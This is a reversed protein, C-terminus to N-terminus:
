QKAIACSHDQLEEGAGYDGSAVNAEHELVVFGPAGGPLTAGVVVITRRDMATSAGQIRDAVLRFPNVAGLTDGTVRMAHYRHGNLKEPLPAWDDGVAAINAAIKDHLGIAACDIHIHLQNQSRGYVSNVALTIADRPLDRKLADTTFHRENWAEAFYNPAGPALVAPDEIGTVKVTPLLLYQAEGVLDKLIAYGAALDVKACKGPQGHQQQEPVCSGSVIGWLVGSDARATGALALLLALALLFRQMM